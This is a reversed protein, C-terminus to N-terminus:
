RNCLRAFFHRIFTDDVFVGAQEIHKEGGVLFPRPPDGSNRIMVQRIVPTVGEFRNFFVKLAVLNFHGFQNGCDVLVLELRLLTRQTGPAFERRAM